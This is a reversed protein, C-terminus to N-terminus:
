AASRPGAGAGNRPSGLTRREDSGRRINATATVKTGSAQRTMLARRTLRLYPPTALIQGHPAVLVAPVFPRHPHQPCPQAVPPVGGADRLPVERSQRPDVLRVDTPDLTALPPRGPDRQRPQDDREVPERSALAAASRPAAEVGSGRTVRGAPALSPRRRDDTALRRGGGAPRVRMADEVHQQTDGRRRPVARRSRWGWRRGRRGPPRRIGRCDDALRAWRSGLARRPRSGPGSIGRCDDAPCTCARADRSPRSSAVTM